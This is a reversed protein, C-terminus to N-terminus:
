RVEHSDRRIGNIFEDFESWNGSLIAGLFESELLTLLTEYDQRLVELREDHPQPKLRLNAIAKEVELLYPMM